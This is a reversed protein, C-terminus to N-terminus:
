AGEPLLAMMDLQLRVGLLAGVVGGKMSCDHAHLSSLTVEFAPQEKTCAHACPDWTKCAATGLPWTFCKDSQIMVAM